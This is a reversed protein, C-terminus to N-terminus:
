EKLKDLYRELLSHAKEFDFDDLAHQLEIAEPQGSLGELVIAFLDDDLENNILLALLAQGAHLYELFNRSNESPATKLSETKPLNKKIANLLTTLEATFQGNDLTLEDRSHAKEKEGVWRSLIMLGLNGAVGKISHLKFVLEDANLSHWDTKEEQEIFLKIKHSLKAKDGWLATGRQWDIPEIKAPQQEVEAEIEAYGLLRAIELFLSPVDLPKVAFGNMGAEETLKRDSAMVSATLAIIPTVARGTAREYDRIYRTAQLGDVRPMHVDMLVVDFRGDIYQTVAEDGNRAQTVKHNKAELVLTLLELNQEIDDAILINLPPLQVEEVEKTLSCKKGIELPLWIHFTSGQGLESEVEIHGDMAEILQRSITTGLGTGGFRRSISADAQTFADFITVVQEKSMGIGTDQVQIHVKQNRYGFVVNVEGRETFKVANGVLNTLVQIIRFADGKFFVPMSAPYETNLRLGKSHAGVRLTSEIQAAVAKLSFNNLELEVRGSELKTIDLIDNLLGLLSRSSQRITNLHSRQQSSLETQLVLDTFGIIANMPTRIEHSMNALFSTKAAAAQEAKEATQRLSKELAKRDSIDTILGVFLTEDNPLDVRGVALRMPFTDGSKRRGVVERGTGIIRPEQTDMYRKLYNDHNSHYPDPMLMKINHGIVEAATYGFMEEASHNFEQVIGVPNITIISDVATDFIAILRQKGSQIERNLDRSRVLGNVAAVTVAITVTISSIALAIYATSVWFGQNYGSITEGYFRVSAMATYHMGAIACGMIIGSLWFRTRESFKLSQLGFRIGIALMALVVAVLISLIFLGPDHRMILSTDIALMGGYHMTGIGAGMLLGSILLQQKSIKPQTLISLTAWAAGLAPLMSVFTALPRYSVPAPLHYAFMGIFHMTWIGSGLAISGTAITLQRYSGNVSRQAGEAMLLALLSLSVAVLVSLFVLGFDYHAHVLELEEPVAAFFHFLHELM